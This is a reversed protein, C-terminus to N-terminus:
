TDRAWAAGPVAVFGALITGKTTVLLFSRQLVVALASGAQMCLQQQM